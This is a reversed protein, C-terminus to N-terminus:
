IKEILDINSKLKTRVVKNVCTFFDMVCSIELRYYINLGEKRDSLIGAKKLLALHRSVGSAEAEVYKVIEGVSKEEKSVYEVIKLRIPHSLAKFIEARLSYIKEIDKDCTM